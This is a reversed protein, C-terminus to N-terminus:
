FTAQLRVGPLVFAHSEESVPSELLRQVSFSLRLKESIRFNYYGEVVKETPGSSIGTHAYGIGWRDLPNFVFNNQVQFGTSYFRGGTSFLTASDSGPADVKGNGYRGFVTLMPTLKQDASVGVAGRRTGTSNDSRYWLRYNGESLGPPRAVYGIESLTYISETLNTADANTQQFGARVNFGNKPDFQAVVGSGNTPLVLVPNNVLADSIFQSTEDNAVVNRDFYNTMDLRGAVLALRRSFIETRVWAERVNVENNRVLRSSYSNLLTLGHREADPPAGSLGVLDAFFTTYQALGASFLLDASALQYAHGDAVTSRGSTQKAFQTVSAASIGVAIQKAEQDALAQELKENITQRRYVRERQYTVQKKAGDVPADHENGNPDVYVEIRRVRTEPESLVASSELDGIRQELAKIRDLLARVEAETGAAAPVVAEAGPIELPQLMVAITQPQNSVTIEQSSREFGSYDIQLVYQGPGVQDFAFRGDADTQITREGDAMGPMNPMRPMAAAGPAPLPRLTVDAGQLVGGQASTVRGSVTQAAVATSALLLVLVGVAIRSRNM